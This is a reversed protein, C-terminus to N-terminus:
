VGAEYYANRGGDPRTRFRRMTWLYQAPALAILKEVEENMRAADRQPDGTPFDSLAPFLHQEYRGTGPVYRTYGPLVVADTLTALRGLTSLTAAPVGFFPAFVADRTGLDEDPSYHFFAGGRMGRLIPRLGQARTCVRGKFRQRARQLLWDALPNRAEKVVALGSFHIGLIAAGFDLMLSHPVLVIIARGRDHHERFHQEGVITILRRLRRESGWWLIGYDLVARMRCRFHDRLMRERQSASLHPYCLGLNVRAIERRKRGLRRALDGLPVALAERLRWPLLALLWVLAAGLWVGWYRPALFGARFRPRYSTQEFGAGGVSASV